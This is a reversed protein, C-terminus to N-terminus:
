SVGSCCCTEFSHAPRCTHHPFEVKAGCSGVASSELLPELDWPLSPSLLFPPKSQPKRGPPQCGMSEQLGAGSQVTGGGVHTEKDGVQDVNIIASIHHTEAVDVHDQLVNSRTYVRVGYIAMPELQAGGAWGEFM